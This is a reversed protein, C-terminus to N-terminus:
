TISVISENIKEKKVFEECAISITVFVWLIEQYLGIVFNGSVLFVTLSIAVSLVILSLKKYEKIEKLYNYSKLLSYYLFMIILMFVSFGLYGLEALVSFFTSHVSRNLGYEGNLFDHDNYNRQYRKIGVGLFPNDNAMDYAVKWFHVRSIASETEEPNHFLTSIRVRYKDITTQISSSQRFDRDFSFEELNSFFNFTYLAYFGISIAVSLILVYRKRLTFFLLFVAIFFGILGGRSFTLFIATLIGILIGICIFKLIRDSFVRLCAVALPFTSVLLLAYANNDGVNGAGYIFRSGSFLGFVGYYFAMVGVMLVVVFVYGRIKKESTLVVPAIISIFALKLLYETEQFITKLNYTGLVSLSCLVILIFLIILLTLVNKTIIKKYSFVTVLIFICAVMFSLKTGELVGHTLELPSVFSYWTYLLLGFYADYFCTAIGITTLFLVLSARLM